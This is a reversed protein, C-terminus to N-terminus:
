LRFGDKPGRMRQQLSRRPQDDDAYLDHQWKVGRGDLVAPDVPVKEEAAQDLATDTLTQSCQHKVNAISICTAAGYIM